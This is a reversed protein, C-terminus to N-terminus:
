IRVGIQRPVIGAWSKTMLRFRLASEWELELEAEWEAEFAPLTEYLRRDAEAGVEEAIELFDITNVEDLTLLEDTDEKYFYLENM